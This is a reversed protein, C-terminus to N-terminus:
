VTLHVPIEKALSIRELSVNCTYAYVEVGASTAEKFASGFDPDLVTNPAFVKADSRQVLFLAAARYGKSVLEQLGRVHRAGRATPADPFLASGDRVLTCSKVEVYCPTQGDRRLCFDFRGSAVRPEARVDTYAAFPPLGQLRLLKGVLENPVRSDVSVLVQGARVLRLDFCTRRGKQKSNSRAIYVEAGPYLLEELRGPDAM